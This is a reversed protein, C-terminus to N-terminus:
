KIAAIRDWKLSMNLHLTKKGLYRLTLLFNLCFATDGNIKGAGSAWKFSFSIDLMELASAWKFSTFCRAKELASAIRFINLFPFQQTTLMRQFFSQNLPLVGMSIYLSWPVWIKWPTNFNLLCSCARRQACNTKSKVGTKAGGQGIWGYHAVQDINVM